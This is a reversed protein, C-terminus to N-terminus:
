KDYFVGYLILFSLSILSFSTLLNLLIDSNNKEKYFEVNIGKEIKGLNKYNKNNKKLFEIHFLVDKLIFSDFWETKGIGEKFFNEKRNRSFSKHLIRELTSIDEEKDSRITFSEKFKCKGFDNYIQKYRNIENESSTKGIKIMSGKRNKIIYLIFVKKM